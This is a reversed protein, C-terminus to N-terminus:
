LGRAYADVFGEEIQGDAAFFDLAAQIKRSPKMKAPDFFPNLLLLTRPLTYLTQKRKIRRVIKASTKAENATMDKRYVDFIIEAARAFCHNIHWFAYAVGAVRMFYSGSFAMLTDHCVSRHEFEEAVHWLFLNAGAADAGTFEADCEELLYKSSFTAANEFEACYAANFALSRTERMTKLEATITEILPKLAEFGADYLRKNFAVHYQAHNREQAIFLDLEAKLKPNAPGYQARVENMVNNLYFEVYPIVASAGNWYLSFEPVRSWIVTATSLKPKRLIM